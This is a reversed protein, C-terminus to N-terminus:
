TIQKPKLLGFLLTRLYKGGVADIAPNQRICHNTTVGRGVVRPQQMNHRQAPMAPLQMRQLRARAIHATEITPCVAQLELAASEDPM